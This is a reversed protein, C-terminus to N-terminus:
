SRHLRGSQWREWTIGIGLFDCLIEAFVGHLDPVSGCFYNRSFEFGKCSLSLGRDRVSSYISFFLPRIKYIGTRHNGSYVRHDLRFVRQNGMFHNKKGRFASKLFPRGKIPVLKSFM